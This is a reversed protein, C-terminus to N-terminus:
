TFSKIRLRGLCVQLTTDFILNKILEEDFGAESYYAVPSTNSSNGGKGRELSSRLNCFASLRQVVAHVHSTEIYKMSNIRFLAM